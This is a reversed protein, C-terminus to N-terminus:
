LSPAPDYGTQSDRTRQKRVCCICAPKFVYSLLM